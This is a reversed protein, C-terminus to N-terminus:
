RDAECVARAPQPSPLPSHECTIPALPQWAAPQFLGPFQDDHLGRKLSIRPHHRPDGTLNRANTVITDFDGHRDLVADVRADYHGYPYSFHRIPAGIEEELRRREVTLDHVIVPDPQTRLCHHTATHYGIDHGEDRLGRLDAVPLTNSYTEHAPMPAGRTWAAVPYITARIGYAALVPRAHRGLGARADDFTLAVAPGSIPQRGAYHAALETMTCTTYPQATLWDILRTFVAPPLCWPSDGDSIDHFTLVPVFAPSSSTM